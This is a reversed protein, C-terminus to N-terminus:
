AQAFGEIIFYFFQDFFSELLRTNKLKLNCLRLPCYIFSLCEAKRKLYSFENVRLYM